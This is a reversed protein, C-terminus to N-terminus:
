RVGRVPHAGVEAAGRPREERESVLGSCAPSRVVSPRATPLHEWRSELSMRLFLHAATHGAVAQRARYPVAALLALPRGRKVAQCFTYDRALKPLSLSAPCPTSWPKLLVVTPRPLSSQTRTTLAAARKANM